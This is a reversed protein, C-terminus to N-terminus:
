SANERNDISHRFERLENRLQALQRGLARLEDSGALEAEEAEADRGVFFSALTATVYGFMAFAYLALFYCLLRGEPTQPWYTGLTAMLMATWWLTTSYEQFINDNGAVGRELVHMGAAGAFIVILTLGVVYGFGRRRMTAGLAGMGRNVSALVKVLRVGRTARSVRLLQFAEGLRFIRLAPLLLSALTLLNRSLYRGRHPALTVKLGFDLLFVGWIAYSALQLLPGLGRVFEVVLLILWVFGLVVMPMELTHELRRVLRFRERNLKRVEKDEM